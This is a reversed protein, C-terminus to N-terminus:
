QTNVQSHYNANCLDFYPSDYYNRWCMGLITLMGIISMNVYDAIRSLRHPLRRRFWEVAAILM